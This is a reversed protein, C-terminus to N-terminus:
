RGMGQPVNRVVEGTSIMRVVHAPDLLLLAGENDLGFYTGDLLADGQRVTMPEGISPGRKLWAQRVEAIGAGEDWTRLWRDLAAALTSMLAERTVSVGERALSTVERGSADPAEAVNIGIGIVIWNRRGAGESSSEVLIGSIKANGVLVDNPWKLKLATRTPCGSMAAAVADFAAIGSVLSLQQAVRLPAAPAVLLSAYLNGSPSVWARGVRGRGQTQREAMVWLGGPGGAAARELALSNTSGVEAHRELRYGAPLDIGEGPAQQM